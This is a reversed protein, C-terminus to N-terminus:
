ILAPSKAWSRYRTKSDKQDRFNGTESQTQTKLSGFDWFSPGRHLRKGPWFRFVGFVGALIPGHGALATWSRKLPESLPRFEGNKRAEGFFRLFQTNRQDVALFIWFIGNKPM